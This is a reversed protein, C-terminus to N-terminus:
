TNTTIKSLTTYFDDPGTAQDIVCLQLNDLKQIGFDSDIHNEYFKSPLYKSHRVRAVPRGVKVLTMHPVLEFKNNSLVFKASSLRSQIASVLQRFSSEPDPQVRAFLVRQGFTDLGHINLRVHNLFRSVEEKLDKMIAVAEEQGEQGNTVRLMSLTVHFLGTKMTCDILSEDQAVVSRQIEVAKSVVSPETVQVAIFHTSREEEELINALSANPPVALEIEIEEDDSEDSNDEDSEGEFQCESAHEHRLREEEDISELIEKLDHNRQYM